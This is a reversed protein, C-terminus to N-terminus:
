QLESWIGLFWHEIEEISMPEIPKIPLPEGPLNWPRKGARMVWKQENHLIRNDLEKVVDPMPWSLDFRTAIARLVRDEMKKYDPLMAKIPRPLDVVYAEAADHLLTWKRVDKSAGGAIAIACLILSHHAVSYFFRSHGGFRCLKSLAAVIDEIEIDEPRPDLPWFPRGSALQMWDGEREDNM